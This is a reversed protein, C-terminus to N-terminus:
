WSGRSRERAYESRSVRVFPKGNPALEVDRGLKCAKTIGVEVVCSNIGNAYVHFAMTEAEAETAYVTWGLSEILKNGVEVVMYGKM